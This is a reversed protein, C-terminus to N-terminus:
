AAEGEYIAALLAAESLGQTAIERAIRGGQLVAIRDCLGILEPLDSSAVIVATGEGALGHILAYIDAKAGVDVGRTPEDLLLLKPRGALARAFLVKQQNGGSLEAVPQEGGRAKLRVKTSTDAVARVAAAHDLFGLRSLNGLHPLSVTRGLGERLMVGEARRDRPVYAVGAAWAAALDPALNAGELAVRGTRPVAGILAKLFTNRGAGALGALGLVEGARVECDIGALPPSSLGEVRLVVRGPAAATQAALAGLSRGTMDRIIQDRDMAAREVSAVTVGDRLVTVRDALRMVEDMRHSVYLVGAGRATLRGIVAFLREAEAHTLAATPEDLVYLWPEPGDEAILTAAIRVLMRDGPGLGAMGARPPIHAIGLQGLAAQAAADLRRWDVLGWRQPLPHALHMNEAVSLGAVVQVEQHLFRFGAAAADAPGALRLAADDLTIQGADARELGALIRILTSKGAGNEGMLAHVEGGHLALTASRLALTAGYAKALGALNLHHVL